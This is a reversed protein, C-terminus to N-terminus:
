KLSILQSPAMSHSLSLQTEMPSELQPKSEKIEKHDRPEGRRDRPARAQARGHQSRLVRSWVHRSKTQHGGNPPRTQQEGNLPNENNGEMPRVYTRKDM